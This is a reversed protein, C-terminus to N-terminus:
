MWIKVDQDVSGTALVCRINRLTEPSRYAASGTIGSNGSSSGSSSGSGSGDSGASGVGGGFLSTGAGGPGGGPSGYLGATGNSFIRRSSTGGSGGSGARLGHRTNHRPPLLAGRGGGSGSGAAGYKSALLGSAVSASSSLTSRRALPSSALTNASATADPAGPAPSSAADDNASSIAPAWRICSIFHHHSDHLVKTCRGNQSLDWCRITRDDSVSLLYKGGPHFALGRVWNDHGKLTLIAESRTNWVRITKDRSGTAVYEFSGSYSSAVPARVGEIAALHGYATTPAFAACEIVHDHGVFTLKGEGTQLNSIRATQDIGASLIYQSDWTPAVCKVWASHGTITRISFGTKVEWVRVTEDRSASILYTGSPTFRVSSITHEHGTLTRINTYEKEPDWLKITLDSSCSALLMNSGGSSSGGFDVDLVAKTHGKITRELEGLEWDWIKITTDESASALISYVSHFAVSTIPQRHGSLSFKAPQRPLWATPDGSAGGRRGSSSAVVPMNELEMTLNSVQSELDLVKRQLRVVSTWKKELVQALKKVEAQDEEHRREVEDEDEGDDYSRNVNDDSHHQHTGNPSYEIRRALGEDIPDGNLVNKIRKVM